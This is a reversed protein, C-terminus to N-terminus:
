MRPADLWWCMKAWLRLAQVSVYIRRFVNNWVHKPRIGKRDWEFSQRTNGWELTHSEMSHQHERAM